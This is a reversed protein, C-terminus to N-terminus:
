TEPYIGYFHFLGDYPMSVKLKTFSQKKWEKYFHFLGDYPMSVPFFSLENCEDMYKTSIFFGTM